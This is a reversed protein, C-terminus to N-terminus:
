AVILSPRYVAKISIDNYEGKDLEISVGDIYTTGASISGQLHDPMTNILTLEATLLLSFASSAPIKGDISVDVKEKSTAVGTVENSEDELEVTDHSYDYKIKHTIIGTEAASIGFVGDGLLTAM